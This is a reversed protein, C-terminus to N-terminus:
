ATYRAGDSVHNSRGKTLLPRDPAPYEPSIGRRFFRLLFTIMAIGDKVM